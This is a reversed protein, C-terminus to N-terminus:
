FVGTGVAAAHESHIGLDGVAQSKNGSQQALRVAEQKFDKTYEKINVM